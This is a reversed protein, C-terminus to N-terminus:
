GISVGSDGARGAPKIDPTVAETPSVRSAAVPSVFCRCYPHVPPRTMSGYKSQYDVPVEFGDVVDGISKNLAKCCDCVDRDNQTRFAIKTVGVQKWRSVNGETFVRTSETQAIGRARDKSTAWEIKARSWGPPIDLGKLRGKLMDILGPLSGGKSIWDSMTDRFANSTAANMGRVLDYAYQKAQAFADKHLLSWGTSVLAKKRSSRRPKLPANIAQLKSMLADGRAAGALFVKSLPGPEEETGVLKEVQEDSLTEFFSLAALPDASQEVQETLRDIVTPDSLMDGLVEVMDEAVTDIGDWYEQFEEPTPDTAKVTSAARDFAARVLAQDGGSAQIDWEVFTRVASPIASSIFKAKAGKSRIKNHWRKLDDLAAQVYVPEPARKTDPVVVRTVRYDPRSVEVTEATISWEGNDMDPEEVGDALYGLTIHPRWRAPKSYPSVEITRDDFLKYVNRQLSAIEATKRVAACFARRGENVFTVYYDPLISVPEKIEIEKGIQGLVSDPVSPCMVLTVHFDAPDTYQAGDTGIADRLRNQLTIMADNDRVPISVYAMQASLAKVSASAVVSKGEPRFYAGTHATQTPVVSRAASGDETETKPKEPEPEPEPEPEIVSPPEEPSPEYGGSMGGMSDQGAANKEAVKNVDEVKVLGVNPVALYDNDLPPMGEALRAENLTYVGGTFLGTYRASLESKTEQLVRVGSFDAVIKLRGDRDFMPVLQTNLESVIMEVEPIITETYFALHQEKSTNHVVIGEAVFTHDRDVVLDYVDHQGVRKVERVKEVISNLRKDCCVVWDGVEIEDARKWVERGGDCVLIPHNDSARLTGDATHIEYCEPRYPQMITKTCESVRFGDRQHWSVVMDGASVAEIPVMTGDAMLVRQGDPLCSYNAAEDAGAITMPVGFAATVERRIELRLDPLALNGVDDSLQEFKIGSGIVGVKHRNKNGGFLREWWKAVRQSEGDDLPQETTLLGAPIAGNKFYAAFYESTSVEAGISRLAFLLPPVGGLDDTPDFDYLYVVQDPEWEGTPAGAIVQRFKKIGSTSDKDVIMTSPNLRMLAPGSTPVAFARGWICMDYEINRRVRDSGQGILRQLIHQRVISTVPEEVVRGDRDIFENNITKVTLPIESVKRGRLSICKYAWLSALYARLLGDDSADFLAPDQQAYGYFWQTLPNNTRPSGSKIAQAIGGGLFYGAIDQPM